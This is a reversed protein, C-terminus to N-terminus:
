IFSVWMYLSSHSFMLKKKKKVLLKNKQLMLECSLTVSLLFWNYYAASFIVIIEKWFKNKRRKKRQISFVLLLEGPVFCNHWFSFIINFFIFSCVYSLVAYNHQICKLSLSLFCFFFIYIPYSNNVLCIKM